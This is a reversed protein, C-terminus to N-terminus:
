WFIWAFAASAAAVILGTIMSPRVMTLTPPSRQNWRRVQISAAACADGPRQRSWLLDFTGYGRGPAFLEGPGALRIHNESSCAGNLAASRQEGNRGDYTDRWPLEWM